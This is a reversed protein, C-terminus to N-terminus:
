FCFLCSHKGSVRLRPSGFSLQRYSRIGVFDVKSFASQTSSFTLAPSSVSSTSLHGPASPLSIVDFPLHSQPSTQSIQVPPLGLRQTRYTQQSLRVPFTCLISLTLPVSCTCLVYEAKSPLYASACRTLSRPVPCRSRKPHGLLYPNVELNTQTLSPSRSISTPACIHVQIPFRFGM